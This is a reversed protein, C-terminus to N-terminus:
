FTHRTIHRKHTENLIHVFRSAYPLPGTHRAVTTRRRHRVRSLQDTDRMLRHRANHVTFPAHRRPRAFAHLGRNRLQSVTWVGHGSGQYGGARANDADHGRGRSM